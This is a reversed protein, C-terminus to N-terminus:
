EIEFADREVGAKYAAGFYKASCMTLAADAARMIERAATVASPREDGNAVVAIAEYGRVKGLYADRCLGLAEEFNEEIEDSLDSPPSLLSLGSWAARCAREASRAQEYAAYRDNSQVASNVSQAAADCHRGAEVINNWFKVINNRNQNDKETLKREEETNAIKALRAEEAVKAKAEAAAKAKQGPTQPVAVVFGVFAILFASASIGVIRKRSPNEVKNFRFVSPAIVGIIGGVMSALVALAFLIAVFDRM